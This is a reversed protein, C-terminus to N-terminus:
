LDSGATAATASGQQDRQRQVFAAAREANVRDVKSQRTTSPVDQGVVELLPDAIWAQGPGLMLIGFPMGDIAPDVDVVVSLRRWGADGSLNRGDLMNDFAPMRYPHDSTEYIDTRIWLGVQCQPGACRLMASFRVRRGRLQDLRAGTPGSTMLVGNAEKADQAGLWSFRLAPVDPSPGEHDVRAVLHSGPFLKWGRLPDADIWRGDAFATPRADAPHPRSNSPMGALTTRVAHLVGDRSYAISIDDNVARKGITQQLEANSSVRDGQVRVLLDGQRLGAAAAPSGPVVVEIPVGRRGDPLLTSKAGSMLLVGLFPDLPREDVVAPLPTPPRPPTEAAVFLWAGAAALVLAAGILGGIAAGSGAGVQKALLTAEPSPAVPLSPMAAPAQSATGLVLVVGAASLGPVRRGLIRRLKDLGRHVRTYATNVPIGQRKAVEVLPVGELHHAIVVHRQDAPLEDLAADLHPLLPAVLSTTEGPDAPEPHDDMASVHRLRTARRRAANRAVLVATRHLWGGVDPAAQAAALRRHLILYVAQEADDVEDPTLMRSLVGRVLGRHGSILGTLIAEHGSDAPDLHSNPALVTTATM